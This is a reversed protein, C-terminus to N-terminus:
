SPSNSNKIWPIGQNSRLIAVSLRVEYDLMFIQGVGDANARELQLRM